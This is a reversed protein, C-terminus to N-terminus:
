IILPFGQQYHLAGCKYQGDTYNIFLAESVEEECDKVCRTINVQLAGCLAIITILLRFVQECFQM